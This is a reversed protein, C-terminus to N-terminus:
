IFRKRKVRRKTNQEYIIFESQIRRQLRRQSVTTIFKGPSQKSLANVPYMWFPNEISFIFMSCGKSLYRKTVLKRGFRNKRWNCAHNITTNSYVFALAFNNGHNRLLRAKKINIFKCLFSFITFSSNLFAEFCVCYISGIEQAM